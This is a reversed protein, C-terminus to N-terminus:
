GAQNSPATEMRQFVAAGGPYKAHTTKATDRGQGGHTRTETDKVVTDM